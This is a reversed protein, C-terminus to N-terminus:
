LQAVAEPLPRVYPVKEKHEQCPVAEDCTQDSAATGQGSSQDDLRYGDIGTKSDDVGYMRRWQPVTTLRHQLDADFDSVMLELHGIRNLPDMYINNGAKRWQHWFWIDDDLRGEGWGGNEDPEGYFYPKEVKRLADARLLTLGFHATTVLIPSGDCEVVANGDEDRPAEAVTALPFAKQRRSQTACLADIEANQGFVAMLRDVHEPMFISDYDITLIWDVKNRLCTEFGRQMCQGWFVGTFRHVPIGFPRLAELISGWNDNWGVRPISMLACIRINQETM